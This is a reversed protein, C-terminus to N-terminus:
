NFIRDTGVKCALLKKGNNEKGKKTFQFQM